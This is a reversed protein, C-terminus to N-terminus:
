GNVITVQTIKSWAERQIHLSDLVTLKRAIDAAKKDSTSETGGDIDNVVRRLVLSRYLKKFNAIIGMDMLQILSMTNPPLFVLKVNTLKTDNSHAACNYCLM